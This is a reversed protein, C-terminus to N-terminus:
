SVLDLELYLIGVIGIFKRGLVIMQKNMREFQLTKAYHFADAKGKKPTCVTHKVCM